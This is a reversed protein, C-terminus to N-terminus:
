KPLATQILQMQQPRNSIYSVFSDHDLAAQQQALVDIKTRNLETVQNRNVSVLMFAIFLLIPPGGLGPGPLHARAKQLKSVQSQIM